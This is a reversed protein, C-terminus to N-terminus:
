RRPRKIRFHGDLRLNEFLFNTAGEPLSGLLVVGEPASRSLDLEPIERTPLTRRPYYEKEKTENDGLPEQEKKAM